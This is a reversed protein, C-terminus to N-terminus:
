SLLHINGIRVSNLYKQAVSLCQMADKKSTFPMDDMYFHPYFALLSYPINEDLSAIFEAIHEVEEVGVYGPVLLTSAALFPPTQRIGYEALWEFNKLTQKNSVGCLAIHLHEDWAKLDFKITGGSELSIDAAKKMYNKSINGNSEWCIRLIRKTNELAIRSTAIAHPMQPSADGGFFCICSTNEDVQAALEQASMTRSLERYHWNQCFLCNFSCSGYFVALNKYGYEAGKSYSYKPYGAESGGACFEIAVCNTPLPDHYCQVIGKEPMGALHILKGKLNKRLGCYGLEGEPISCQNACIRCRVGEAKPIEPPLGFRIRSM